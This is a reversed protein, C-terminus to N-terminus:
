WSSVCRFGTGPGSFNPDAANRLFAEASIPVNDWEGGRLSHQPRAASEDDCRPNVLLSSKTWFSGTYPEFWDLVWESVNGGLNVVGLTTVDDASRDDPGGIAVPGAGLTSTPLLRCQEPGGDAESRGVVAHACIDTDSGWPFFSEAQLNRAVYEWEAETPLRKGLLRCAQDATSFPVCNVPMEDNSADADSLYTCAPDQSQGTPAPLHQSQVLARVQGVSVEAVDIAFPGLQVLPEPVPDLDAGLEAYETSGLLVLGGPVCVMDSPVADACPVSAAPPWSGPAPLESSDLDAALTPESALSGSTPDCSQHLAPEAAVSFCNMGLTLGVETLGRAPPLVATADILTQNAPLGDGGTEELRYLRARLRPQSNPEDPVIGFSIPWLAPRSADILRRGDPAALEGSDDLLEVLLQEGLQPIPADTAVYVKWQDRAPAAEEGCGSAQV